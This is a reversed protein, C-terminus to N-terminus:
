ELLLICVKCGLKAASRTSEVHLHVLATEYALQAAVRAKSSEYATKPWSLEAAKAYM